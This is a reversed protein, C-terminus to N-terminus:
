PMDEIPIWYYKVNNFNLQYRYGKSKINQLNRYKRAFNSVIDFYQAHSVVKPDQIDILSPGKLAASSENLGAILSMVEGVSKKDLDSESIDPVLSRLLAKMADVYGKRDDSNEKAIRNVPELRQVLNNFEDASIYIIPKWYDRGNNDRKATYGTFASMSNTKKLEIYREYGIMEIYFASDVEAELDDRKDVNFDFNRGSNAVNDIRSQVADAFDSLSNSLLVSLNTAPMQSGVEAQRVAFVFYEKRNGNNRDSLNSRLDYGYAVEKYNPELNPSLRHYQAIINSIMLSRLQSNFRTYAEQNLHCVQFTILNMKSDVMKKALDDPDIKTDNEDNGCDGVIVMLNSENPSYGMKEYDLAAAIGQYLAEEKTKDAPASKIHYEGGQDLFQALRPDDNKVMPLSETMYKGDAYDRYIVVGVRFNYGERIFNAGRKIAEKVPAYYPEMSKTGDIVVILNMNQIRGLVSEIHKINKTRADIAANLSGGIMGFTTCKYIATDQTDNDLIPFRLAEKPMRYQTPSGEKEDINLSRGYTFSAARKTQASNGYIVVEKGKFYNVDQLDWTPELCSRQNWKIYSSESVWGYLMQDSTGELSFQRSLLVLGNEARKMIFYINMDTKMRSEGARTAPNNYVRGMDAVKDNADINAVLLAKEYIGKEDTPSTTWLLLNNMPVWGRSEANSSINPYQSQEAPERYVLAFGNQIKAIRVKENFRLHSFEGGSRSPTQYTTNDDRDSYAIWYRKSGSPQKGQGYDNSEAIKDADTKYIVSHSYFSGPLFADCRNGM